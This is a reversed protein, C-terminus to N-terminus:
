ISRCDVLLSTASRAVAVNAYEQTATVKLVDGFESSIWSSGSVPSAM